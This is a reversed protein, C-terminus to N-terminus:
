AEDPAELDEPRAAGIVRQALDFRFGRRALAALDRDRHEARNAPARWPGLKRRRAYAIAAALDPDAHEEASAALAADIAAPAVGKAALARAIGRRPNGRRLLSGAKTEAYRADNLLGNRELKQLLTDIWKTAAEVDIEHRGASRQVKRLLVRRLNVKSSAFRQLYHLAARELRDPTVKRALRRPRPSDTM